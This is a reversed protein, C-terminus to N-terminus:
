VPLSAMEEITDVIVHWSMQQEVFSAIHQNFNIGRNNDFWRIGEALSYPDGPSVLRGTVGDVVVEAFGGVETALVPKGFGYSTAIVGSTKATRYPLVALDAWSFYRSMDEDTVYRDVIEVRGSIGLERILDVYTRSDHWFEGVVKLKVDLDAVMAVARLLVDLGKYPRVFGFFLLHLSSDCRSEAASEYRFLPLLQKRISATSNIDHLQEMEQQSHVMLLDAKRIVYRSLAKKVFFDEHEFVNICLLLCRIGKKKLYRMLYAYMPAWYAVWWPLIVVLPEFQGIADAAKRWSAINISDIDYSLGSFEGLIRTKDYTPDTQSKNGYLVAPYLRSYSLLLLEHRKELEQALSHCYKAIGGRFPPIPAVLCIKM